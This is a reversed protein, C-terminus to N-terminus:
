PNFHSGRPIHAGRQTGDQSITMKEVIYAMKVHLTHKELASKYQDNAMLSQCLEMNDSIGSSCSWEESYSLFCILGQFELVENEHCVIWCSGSIAAM